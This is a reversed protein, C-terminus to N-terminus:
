ETGDASEDDLDHGFGEEQEEAEARKEKLEKLKKRDKESQQRRERDLDQTREKLQEVEKAHDYAEQGYASGDVFAATHAFVLCSVAVVAFKTHSM